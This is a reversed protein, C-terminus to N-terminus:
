ERRGRAALLGIAAAAIGALAEAAPLVWRPDVAFFSGETWAAIISPLRTAVSSADIAVAALAAALAVLLASVPLRFRLSFSGLGVCLFVFGLARAWSVALGEGEVRALPPGLDDIFLIGTSLPSSVGEWAPVLSWRTSGVLASSGIADFPASPLWSLRSRAKSWDVTVLGRVRSGEIASVSALRDGVEVAQGAVPFARSPPMAPWNMERLITGASAAVMGALAVFLLNRPSRGLAGAFSVIGTTLAFALALPWEVLSRELFALGLSGASPRALTAAFAGAASLLFLLMLFELILKGFVALWRKM